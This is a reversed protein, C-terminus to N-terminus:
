RRAPNPPPKDPGRKDGAPNPPAWDSDARRIAAKNNPPPKRDLAGKDAAKDAVRKEHEAASGSNEAANVIAVALSMTLMVIAALVKSDM